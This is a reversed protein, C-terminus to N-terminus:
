WFKYSKGEYSDNHLRDLHFLFEEKKQFVKINGVVLQM